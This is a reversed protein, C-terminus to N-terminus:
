WPPPPRRTRTGHDGRRRAAATGAAELAARTAEAVAPAARRHVRRRCAPSTTRRAGLTRSFGDADAQQGDHEDASSTTVTAASPGSPRCRGPGGAAPVATARDRVPRRRAGVSRAARRAGVRPGVGRRRAGPGGLQEPHEGVRPGRRPALRGRGQEARGVGRPRRRRGAVGRRHGLDRPGPHAVGPQAVGDGLDRGDRRGGVPGHQPGADVGAAVRDGRAVPEVGRGAAAPCGPARRGPACRRRSASTRGAGPAMVGTPAAPARPHPLCPSRAAAPAGRRGTLGPGRGRLRLPQARAARRPVQDVLQGRVSNGAADLPPSFTALGGKGPSVTVIGGSVGSKGPM